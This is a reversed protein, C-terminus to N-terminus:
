FWQGIRKMRPHQQLPLFDRIARGRCFRQIVAELAPRCQRLKQIVSLQWDIVVPDLVLNARNGDTAAIPQKSAGQTRPLTRRRHHTQNLTGPKVPMIRIRVQLIHQSAQRRLLVALDAFQQRM